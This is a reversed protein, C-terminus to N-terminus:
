GNVEGTEDEEGIYEVKAGAPIKYVKTKVVKEKPKGTMFRPFLAKMVMKVVKMCGLQWIYYAVCWVPIFFNGGILKCHPVGDLSAAVACSMFVIMLFIGFIMGVWRPMERDVKGAAKEEPSYKPFIQKKIIEAFVNFVVGTVFFLLILNGSEEFLTNFFITLSEM